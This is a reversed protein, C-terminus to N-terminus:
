AFRHAGGRRASGVILGGLRLWRPAPPDESPWPPYNGRDEWYNYNYGVIGGLRTIKEIAAEQRKARSATLALGVSLTLIVIMLVRVTMRLRRKRPKQDPM